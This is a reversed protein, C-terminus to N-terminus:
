ELLIMKKTLIQNKTKLQFFYIGSCLQKGSDDKGDWFTEYKGAPKIEDVLKAVIEGLINVVRLSIRSKEFLEYSIRTTENFPNPYNASLAIAKPLKADIQIKIPGFFENSGNTAIEEIKYWYTNGSRVNNDFYSYDHSNASTHHSQILKRTIKIYGSSKLESRWLYFGLSNIESRTQWFIKVGKTSSYTLSFDILEVPVPIEAKVISAWLNWMGLAAYRSGNENLHGSDYTWGNWLDPITDNEYIFWSFTGTSDHAELDALDFLCGDTTEVFTRISDNLIKKDVERWNDTTSLPATIFVFKCTPFDQILKEMTTKYQNFIVPIDKKINFDIYCFKFYAIDLVEGWQNGNGNLSRMKTEFAFIKGSPDRNEGNRWDGVAPKELSVPDHVLNISYRLPNVSSLNILGSEINDGISHHGWLIKKTRVKDLISIDVQSPNWNLHNIVISDGAFIINILVLNIILLIGVNKYLHMIVEM